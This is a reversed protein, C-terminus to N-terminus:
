SKTSRLAGGWIMAMVGRDAGAGAVGDAGHLELGRVALDRSRIELADLRLTELREGEHGLSDTALLLAAEGKPEM